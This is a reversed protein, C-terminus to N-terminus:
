NRLQYLYNYLAVLYDAKYEKIGHIAIRDGIVAIANKLQEDKLKLRDKCLRATRYSFWSHWIAKQPNDKAQEAM